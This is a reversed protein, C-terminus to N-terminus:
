DAVEQRKRKRDERTERDEESEREFDFKAEEEEDEEADEENEEEDKEEVVPEEGEEKEEEVEEGGEEKGDDGGSEGEQKEGEEEDDDGGTEVAEALTKIGSEEAEAAAERWEVLENHKKLLDQYRQTPSLRLFEKNDYLSNFGFPSDKGLVECNERFLAELREDPGIAKEHIHAM